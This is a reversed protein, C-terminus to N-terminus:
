GEGKGDADLAEAAALADVDAQCTRCRTLENEICECGDIGSGCHQTRKELREQLRKRVVRERRAREREPTMKEAIHFAIHGERELSQAECYTAPNQHCVTEERAAERDAKTPKM